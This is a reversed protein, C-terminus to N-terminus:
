EDGEDGVAMEGTGACDGRELGGHEGTGRCQGCTEFGDENGFGTAYPM